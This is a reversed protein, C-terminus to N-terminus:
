KCALISNTSKKDLIGSEMESEEQEDSLDEFSTQDIPSLSFRMQDIETIVNGTGVRVRCTFKKKKGKESKDQAQQDKGDDGDNDVESLSEELCIQDGYDFLVSEETKLGSELDTNNRPLEIPETRNTFSTAEVPKREDFVKDSM